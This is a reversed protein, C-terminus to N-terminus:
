MIYYDQIYTFEKSKTYYMQDKILSRRSVVLSIVFGVAIM